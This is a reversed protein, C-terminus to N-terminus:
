DDLALIIGPDIFILLAEKKNTKWPEGKNFSEGKVQPM